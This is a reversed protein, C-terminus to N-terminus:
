ATPPSSSLRKGKHRSTGATRRVDRNSRQLQDLPTTGARPADMHHVRAQHELLLAINARLLYDNRAREAAGFRGAFRSKARHKAHQHFVPVPIAAPGPKNQRAREALLEDVVGMIM